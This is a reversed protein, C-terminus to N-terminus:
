NNRVLRVACGRCRAQDGIYLSGNDRFSVSKAFLEMYQTNPTSSWYYGEQLSMGLDTRIGAFPLFVAGLAELQEWQDHTYDNDYSWTSKPNFVINTINEFGDPLIILGKVKNVRALSYLNNANPRSNFLYNWEQMTLTRWKNTVNGGNSIANNGWESFTPYETEVQDAKTPNNGTGWGFLDIWGDYDDAINENDGLVCDYQTEAFRWLKNKAHYQLNGRSFRVTKGSAVTFAGNMLEGDKIELTPPIYVEEFKISDVNMMSRKYAVSNGVWVQMETYTPGDQALINAACLAVFLLIITKRM